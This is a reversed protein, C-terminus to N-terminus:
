TQLSAADSGANPETLGFCGLMEGRCLAPLYRQKQEETGWRNITLAVLSVQVSLTTRVSSCARGIEEIILAYSIYDLGAGGYEPPLPAGLLGLEGLKQIIDGPFREHIDNERAVPVIEEDAFKKAMERIAQQEETLEFDM